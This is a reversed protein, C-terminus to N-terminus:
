AHNEMFIVSLGCSLLAAGACPAIAQVRNLELKPSYLHNDQVMMPFDTESGMLGVPVDSVRLLNVRAM